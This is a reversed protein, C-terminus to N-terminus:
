LDDKRGEKLGRARNNSIFEDELEDQDRIVAMHKGKIDVFKKMCKLDLLVIENDFSYMVHLPHM